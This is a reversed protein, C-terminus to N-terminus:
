SKIVVVCGCVCKCVSVCVCVCVCVCVALRREAQSRLGWVGVSDRGNVSVDVSPLWSSHQYTDCCSTCCNCACLCFYITIQVGSFPQRLPLSKCSVAASVYVMHTLLIETKSAKQTGAAVILLVYRM